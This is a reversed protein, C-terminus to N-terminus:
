HMRCKRNVTTEYIQHPDSYCVLGNNLHDLGTRYGFPRGNLGSDSYCVFTNPIQITSTLTTTKITWTVDILIQNVSYYFYLKFPKM